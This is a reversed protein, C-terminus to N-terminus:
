RRPKIQKALEDLMKDFVAKHEKKVNYYYINFIGHNEERWYRATPKEIEERRHGKRLTVIIKEGQIFPLKIMSGCHITLLSGDEFSFDHILGDHYDTINKTYKSPVKIHIKKPRGMNLRCLLVENIEYSTQNDIQAVV